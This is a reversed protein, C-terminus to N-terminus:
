GKVAGSIVGEIIHKQSFLYFIVVPIIALVLIAMMSGMDVTGFGGKLYQVAIPITKYKKLDLTLYPLLYDNWLWMVELIAVTIVAPKLVPFVVLFYTRIPGCGDIRAAEELEYPIAKVFGTFIFVALGAGFGLYIIWLGVPNGLGLFDTLWSLTFMVMQFPVVMSFLFVVYLFMAFKTNARVIWWATMSTFLLIWFASGVTIVLSWIITMWFDTQAIGRLYNEFGAFSTSNPLAFPNDNIYIKGKFSNIVVLIIPFLYAISLISFFVTWARPRKVDTM